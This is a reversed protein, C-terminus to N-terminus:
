SPLGDRREDEIIADIIKGLVAGSTALTEEVFDRWEDTMQVKEYMSPDFAGHELFLYNDIEDRDIVVISAFKGLDDIATLMDLISEQGFQRFTQTILRKCISRRYEVQPNIASNVLRQIKDPTLGEDEM